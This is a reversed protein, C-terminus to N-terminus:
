WKEDFSNWFERIYIDSHIPITRIPESHIGIQYKGWPRKRLDFLNKPVKLFYNDFELFGNRIKLNKVLDFNQELILFYLTLMCKKKM